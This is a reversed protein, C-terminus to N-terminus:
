ERTQKRFLGCDRGFGTKWLTRNLAEEKLNWYRRNEKLDDPLQKPRRGRIRKGGIKGEIVHKLLWKRRL